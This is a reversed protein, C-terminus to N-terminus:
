PKKVYDPKQNEHKDLIALISEVLGNTDGKKFKGIIEKTHEQSFITAGPEVNAVVEGKDNLIQLKGKEPVIDDIKIKYIKEGVKEFTGGEKFQQVGKSQTDLQQDPALVDNKLIGLEAITGKPVELIMASPYFSTIGAKDEKNLSGLQLVRWNEDLFIFDLDFNMNRMVMHVRIPADFIFLMGKRKGLRPLDSLGKAQTEPTDAIAVDFKTGKINLPYLKM